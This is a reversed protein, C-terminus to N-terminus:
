YTILSHVPGADSVHKRGGLFALEIFFTSGLVKGGAEAILHLAAAATGGTALLDDALLVTEGPAIADLHMEVSNTGYELAYDIGRTQWPLKGKKRVPIFGAGLREAILAGFIFGRADIGVVKDVETIGTTEIMGDIVQALLTPNALVPTIDKFLIGPNPFDPVDRITRRISDLIDPAM